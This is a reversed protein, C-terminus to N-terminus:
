LPILTYVREFSAIQAVADPKSALHHPTDQSCCRRTTSVVTLSFELDRFPIRTLVSIRLRLDTMRILPLGCAATHSSLLDPIQTSLRVSLLVPVAQLGSYIGSCIQRPETNLTHGTYMNHVCFM